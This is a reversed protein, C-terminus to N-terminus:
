LLAREERLRLTSRSRTAFRRTSVRVFVVCSRDAHIQRRAAEKQLSHILKDDAVPRLFCAAPQYIRELEAPGIEGRVAAAYREWEGLKLQWFIAVDDIPRLLLLFLMAAVALSLVLTRPSDGEAPSEISM